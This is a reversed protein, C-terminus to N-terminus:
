DDDMGPLYVIVETWRMCGAKSAADKGNEVTGNGAWGGAGAAWGHGQSVFSYSIGM